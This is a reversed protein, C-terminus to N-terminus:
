GIDGPAQRWNGQQERAEVRARAYLRMPTGAHRFVLNLKMADPPDLFRKVLSRMSGQREQMHLLTLPVDPAHRVAAGDLNRGEACV